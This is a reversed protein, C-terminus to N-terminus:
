KKNEDTKQQTALQTHFHKILFIYNRASRTFLIATCEFDPM